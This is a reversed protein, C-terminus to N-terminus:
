SVAANTKPNKKAFRNAEMVNSYPRINPISFYLTYYIIKIEVRM